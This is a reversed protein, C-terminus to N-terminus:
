SVYRWMYGGATKRYGKHKVCESINQYPIGLAKGATKCGNWICIVNGNIDLQEIQRIIHADSMKKKQEDSAKKGKRKNSMKLKSVDSHKGFSNGGHQINYGYFKDTSNYLKILDIEKQEAEEKTLNTFLIEHKFNDWGYKTIARYFYENHIYGRGKQWRKEVEQVTIGIYVKGSPSTHKYVTYNMNQREKLFATSSM